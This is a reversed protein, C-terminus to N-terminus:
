GASLDAMLFTAPWGPSLYFLHTQNNTATALNLNSSFQAAFIIENSANNLDIKVKSSLPATGNQGLPPISGDPYAASFLNGFDAELVHGSSTIVRNAFYIASDMDTPKQGRKDTVASGRTLYAKALFHEAMARSARGRNGADQRWPLVPAAELLDRFIQTYVEAVSARPFEFQPDTPVTTILPVGGLQQVM